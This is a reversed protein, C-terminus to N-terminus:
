NLGWSFNSQWRKTLAESIKANFMMRTSRSELSASLNPMNYFLKERCSRPLRTHRRELWPPLTQGYDSKLRPLIGQSAEWLLPLYLLQHPGAMLCSRIGYRTPFQWWSMEWGGGPKLQTCSKGGQVRHPVVEPTKTFKIFSNRNLKSTAGQCCCSVNVQITQWRAGGTQHWWIPVLSISVMSTKIKSDIYTIFQKFGNSSMTEKGASDISTHCPLRIITTTISTAGDAM